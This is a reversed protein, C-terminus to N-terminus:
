QALLSASLWFPDDRSLRRLRGKSNVFAHTTTATALLSGSRTIWYDFRATARSLKNLELRVDIREGAYVPRKFACSCSTLPIFVGRVTLREYNHGIAALWGIRAEELWRFFSSHHAIGQADTDSYRVRLSEIHASIDTM